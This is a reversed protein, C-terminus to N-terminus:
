FITKESEMTFKLPEMNGNARSVVNRLSDMISACAVDDAGRERLDALWGKGRGQVYANIEEGNNDDVKTFQAKDQLLRRIDIEERSSLLLRVNRCRDVLELMMKVLDQRQLQDIEDLGDITIFLPDFDQVINCFLELLFKADRTFKPGNSAESVQDIFRHDVV